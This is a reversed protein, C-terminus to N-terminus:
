WESVLVKKGVGELRVTVGSSTRPFCIYGPDAVTIKDELFSNKVLDDILFVSATGSGWADVMLPYDIDVVSKELDVFCLEKYKPPLKFEVKKVSGYDSAMDSIKNKFSKQFEIYKAEDMNVQMKMIAQTGFLLVLGVVVISLVFVFVQSTEMGKKNKM